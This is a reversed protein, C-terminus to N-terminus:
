SAAVTAVVYAQVARNRWQGLLAAFRVSSWVLAAGVLAVQLLRDSQALVIVGFQGGWLAFRLAYNTAALPPVIVDGGEGLRALYPRGVAKAVASRTTVATSVALGAALSAIDRTDVVGAVWPPAWCLIALVAVVAVQIATVTWLLWRLLNPQSALWPMAAGLVGFCNVGWALAVALPTALVLTTMVLRDGGSLWVAPMGLVVVALIPRRVEVTRAMQRVLLQM